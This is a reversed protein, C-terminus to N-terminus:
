IRPWASPFRVMCSANATSWSNVPIGAGFVFIGYQTASLAAWTFSDMEAIVPLGGLAGNAPTRIALYLINKLGAFAMRSSPIGCVGGFCANASATSHNLFLPYTAFIQFRQLRRFTQMVPVIFQLFNNRARKSKGVVSKTACSLKRKTRMSSM